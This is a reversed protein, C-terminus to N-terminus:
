RSKWYFGTSEMAITKVGQSKLWKAMEHHNETFVGFERVFDDGEGIAVFHSKSGLDIGAAYSNVKEFEISSSKKKGESKSALKGSM